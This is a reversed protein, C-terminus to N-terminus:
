HILDKKSIKILKKITLKSHTKRRKFLKTRMIRERKVKIESLNIEFPSIKKGDESIKKKSKQKRGIQKM